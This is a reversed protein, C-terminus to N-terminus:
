TFRNVTNLDFRISDEDIATSTYQSVQVSRRVGFPFFWRCCPCSVLFSSVIYILLRSRNKFFIPRSPIIRLLNLCPQAYGDDITRCPLFPWRRPIWLMPIAIPFPRSHRSLSCHHFSVLNLLNARLHDCPMLHRAWGLPAHSM